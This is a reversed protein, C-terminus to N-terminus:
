APVSVTTTVAADGPFRLRGDPNTLVVTSSKAARSTARIRCPIQHRGPPFLCKAQVYDDDTTPTNNIEIEMPPCQDDEPKHVCPQTPTKPPLPKPKQIAGGAQEYQDMWYSRYKVDDDPTLQRGKLEPFQSWLQQNATAVANPDLPREARRYTM